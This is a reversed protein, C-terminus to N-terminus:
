NYYWSGAQLLVFASYVTFTMELWGSFTLIRCAQDVWEVEM